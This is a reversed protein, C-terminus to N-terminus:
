TTKGNKNSDKSDSDGSIRGRRGRKIFYVPAYIAKLKHHYVYFIFLRETLYALVRKEYLTGNSIGIKKEIEFLLPFLWEFYKDFLEYRSIFIDLFFAADNNELFYVFEEEYEPYLECVVKKMCLWISESCTTALCQEKITCNLSYTKPLIIDNYKLKKIALDDYNKMKPITNRALLFWEPCPESLALFRRYHALGIYEINPYITKINKWIWYWATFEGFMENRDSINDGTNDGQMRLDFGAVAKGSQIPFFINEKPLLCKKKNYCVAIKIKDAM